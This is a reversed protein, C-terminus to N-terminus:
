VHKLSHTFLNNDEWSGFYKITNEATKQDEELVIVARVNKHEQCYNKIEDPTMVMFATSLADSTAASPSIIWAAIKGEIPLTTRPNIIHQGKQLGSGSVAQNELKICALVQKLDTPNRLTIPWGQKENPTGLTLVSSTGGHILAIKIDWEHLLEAMRDLAYGKGIGGLDISIQDSLLTVTNRDIDLELQNIMLPQHTKQRDVLSGFTIDFAGNTEICLRNSLKLCELTDLGITVSESPALKNIRYIDSNKIFRSLERELRDLEELAEWAAQKAYEINEHLIYIEFVTAMSERSDRHIGPISKWAISTSGM